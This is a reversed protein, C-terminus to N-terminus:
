HEGHKDSGHNAVQEGDHMTEMHMTEDTMKEGNDMTHMSDWSMKESNDMKDGNEMKHMSESDDEIMSSDDWMDMWKMDMDWGGVTMKMHDEVTMNMRAAADKTEKYEAVSMNYQEAQQSETLPADADSCSALGLTAVLLLSILTIKKM